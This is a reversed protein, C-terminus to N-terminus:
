LETTDYLLRNFRQVPQRFEIKRHYPLLGGMKSYIKHLCINPIYPQPFGHNKISPPLLGVVTSYSYDLIADNKIISGGLTTPSLRVDNFPLPKTARTCVTPLYTALLHSRCNMTKCEGFFDLFELCRLLQRATATAVLQQGLINTGM